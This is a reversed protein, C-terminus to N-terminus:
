IAQPRFHVGAYRSVQQELGHNQTWEVAAAEAIMSITVPSRCFLSDAVM